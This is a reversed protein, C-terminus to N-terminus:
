DLALRLATKDGISLPPQQLVQLPRAYCPVFTWIYAPPVAGVALGLTQVNVLLMHLFEDVAAVSVTAEATVLLELGLLAPKM